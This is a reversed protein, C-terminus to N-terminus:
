LLRREKSRMLRDMAELVQKAEIGGEASLILLAHDKGEDALEECVQLLRFGELTYAAMEASARPTTTDGAEGEGGAGEIKREEYTGGLGGAEDDDGVVLGGFGEVGGDEAGALEGAGERGFGDQAEGGVVDEGEFVEGRVGFNLLGAGCGEPLDGGGLGAEDYCGYFGGAHTEEGAVVVAGEGEMEFDTFLVHGVHEDFV